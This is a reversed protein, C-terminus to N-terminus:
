RDVGEKGVKARAILFIYFPPPEARNHPSNSLRDSECRYVALYMGDYRHEWSSSVKRIFGKADASHHFENAIKKVGGIEEIM